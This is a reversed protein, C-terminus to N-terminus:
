VTLEPQTEPNQAGNDADREQYATWAKEILRRLFSSMSRDAEKAMEELWRRQEATLSVGQNRM